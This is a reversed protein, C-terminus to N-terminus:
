ASSIHACESYIELRQESIGLSSDCGEGRCLSTHGTQARHGEAGREAPSRSWCGVGTVVAAPPTTFSAAATRHGLGM